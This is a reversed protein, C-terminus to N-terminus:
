EPGLQAGTGKFPTGKFPMRQGVVHGVIWLLYTPRHVTTTILDVLWMRENALAYKSIANRQGIIM